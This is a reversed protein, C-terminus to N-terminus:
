ILARHRDGLGDDASSRGHLRGPAAAAPGSSSLNRRDPPVNTNRLRAHNLVVVVVLLSTFLLRHRLPDACVPVALGDM